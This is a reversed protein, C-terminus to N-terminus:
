WCHSVFYTCFSCSAFVVSIYWSLFGVHSLFSLLAWLGTHFWAFLLLWFLVFVFCLLIGTVKIRRMQLPSLVTSAPLLLCRFWVVAPFLALVVWCCRVNPLGRVAPESASTGLSPDGWGSMRVQVLKRCIRGPSRARDRLGPSEM